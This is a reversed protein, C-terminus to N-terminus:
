DTKEVKIVQSSCGISYHDADHKVMFLIVTEETDFFPELPERRADDFFEQEVGADFALTKDLLNSPYEKILDLLRTKSIHLAEAIPHFEGNVDEKVWYNMSGDITHNYVSGNKTYYKIHMKIQGKLIM